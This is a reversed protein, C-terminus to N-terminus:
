IVSDALSILKSNIKINSAEAKKLNIAFKLKGADEYLEIIVGRSSAGKSDSVTLISQKGASAVIAPIKGAASKGIYVLSCDGVSESALARVSYKKNAQTIKDVMDAGDAVCITTAPKSLKVYNLFLSTFKAKASDSDKLGEASATGAL